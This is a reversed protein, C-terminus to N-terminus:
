GTLQVAVIRVPDAGHQGLAVGVRREVTQELHVGLPPVHQLAGLLQLRPAVGTRFLDSLQVAVAPRIDRTPSSSL